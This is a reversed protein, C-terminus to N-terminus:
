ENEKIEMKRITIGTVENENHSRYFDQLVDEVTTTEDTYEYVHTMQPNEGWEEKIQYDVRYKISM